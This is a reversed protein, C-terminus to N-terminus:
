MVGADNRDLGRTFVPSDVVVGHFGDVPWREILDNAVHPLRAIGPFNVFTLITVISESM